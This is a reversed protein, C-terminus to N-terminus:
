GYKGQHPRNEVSEGTKQIVWVGGQRAYERWKSLHKANGMSGMAWLDRPTTYETCKRIHSSNGM